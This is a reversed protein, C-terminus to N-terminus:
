NPMSYILSITEAVCVPKTEGEVEFIIKFTYKAGGKVDEINILSVRGRFM